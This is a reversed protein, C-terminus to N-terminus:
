DKTRYVGLNYWYFNKNEKIIQDLKEKQYEDLEYIKEEKTQENEKENSEKM